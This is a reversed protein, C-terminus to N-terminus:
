GKNDILKYFENYSEVAKPPAEPTLIYILKELSYKYWLKNTMFYPEDVIMYM